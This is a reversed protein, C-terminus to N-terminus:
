AKERTSMQCYQIKHALVDLRCDELKFCVSAFEVGVKGGEKPLKIADHEKTKSMVGNPM